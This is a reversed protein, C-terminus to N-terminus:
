VPESRLVLLDGHTGYGPLSGGAPTGDFTVMLWRAGERLLTPWAINTPYAADLSGVDGGDLDLVAFRGRRGAPGDRGDSVLLRLGHGAGLDALTSGETATRGRDASRLTLADLSPGIALVPHFRFWATANVFGVLWRGDRHLLHPDWTGVSDLGATPVRMPTSALVHRGRRPDTATRALACDVRAGPRGVIFDSWTSTAVLWGPGAGAGPRDDRILHTAHDGHVASSGPRTFFLDGAHELAGTAPDLLWTGTHGVTAFGPGAHTATLWVRGGERLPTGDHTTVLRVDRLGLQGYGGAVLRTLAAPEAPATVAVALASLLEPERTAVRGELDVLARVTWDTAAGGAQESTLVALTTGTLSLGLRRPPRRLRGRRRSRHRSAAGDGTDVQLWVRGGVPDWLAALRVPGAVLALEVNGRRPRDALDAVVAVYPAPSPLPLSAAHALAGDLADGHLDHQVAHPAVLSIPRLRHVPDFRPLVRDDHRV